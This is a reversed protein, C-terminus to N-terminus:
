SSNTTIRASCATITTRVTRFSAARSCAQSYHSSSSSSCQCCKDSSSAWTRTERGMRGASSDKSDKSSHDWGSVGHSSGSSCLTSSNKPHYSIKTELTGLTAEISTISAAEEVERPSGKSFLMQMELKITSDDRPPIRYVLWPQMWSRSHRMLRRHLMRIQICRWVSRRIREKSSMIRQM